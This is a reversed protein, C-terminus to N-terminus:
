QKKRELRKQRSIISNEEEETIIDQSEHNDKIMAVLYLLCVAFILVFKILSTEALTRPFNAVLVGVLLYAFIYSRGRRMRFEVNTMLGGFILVYMLNIIWGGINEMPMIAHLMNSAYFEMAMQQHVPKIILLYSYTVSVAQSLWYVLLILSCAVWQAGFVAVDTLNLRKVTNLSLSDKPDQILAITLIIGATFIMGIDFQYANSARISLAVPQAVFALLAVPLTKKGYLTLYLRILSAIKKYDGKSIVKSKSKSKSKSESKSKPKECGSNSGDTTKQATSLKTEKDENAKIGMIEKNGTMQEM